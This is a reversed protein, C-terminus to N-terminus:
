IRVKNMSECSDDLNEIDEDDYAPLFCLDVFRMTKKYLEWGIDEIDTIMDGVIFGLNRSFCHMESATMTFKKKRLKKMSILPPKNGKENEGYPFSQVRENLQNLTFDKKIKIWYLISEALNYREIGEALDHTLDCGVSEVVHFHPITNLISTEKIGTKTTDNMLIDDLYNNRNRELEEQDRYQKQLDNKTIRCYRCCFSAIFATIFGILDNQGLNDGLLLGLVFYVKIDEGDIQLTLGDTALKTLEDVLTNLSADKGHKKMDSSSHFGATFINDLCSHFQPPITPFLYYSLNESGTITHTGLANNLQVGDMYLHYPIVVDDKEYSNLKQKWLDGNIFHTYKTQRQIRETNEMVMKFVNPLEFFKKIEFQIPSLSFKSREKFIMEKEDAETEEGNNDEEADDSDDLEEDLEENNECDESLICYKQLPSLLDKKVLVSHLKKETLIDNFSSEIATILDEIIHENEAGAIPGAFKKLGDVISKLFNRFLKIMEFGVSRAFNMNAMIELILVLAQEKLANQYEIM